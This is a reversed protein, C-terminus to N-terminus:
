VHPLVLAGVRGADAATDRRTGHHAADWCQLHEGVAFLSPLPLVLRASTKGARRVELQGDNDILWTWGSGFAAVAHHSFKEVFQDVSGFHLTLADVLARSPKTASPSMGDWFFTHNWIQATNNFVVAHAKNVASDRIVQELSGTEFQTGTVLKNANNM